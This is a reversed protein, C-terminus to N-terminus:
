ASVTRQVHFYVSLDSPRLGSHTRMNEAVASRKSVPKRRAAVDFNGSCEGRSGGFAGEEEEGEEGFKV